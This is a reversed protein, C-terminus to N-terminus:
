SEERDSEERELTLLSSGVRDSHYIQGTGYSSPIHDPAHYYLGRDNWKSMVETVRPQQGPSHDIGTVIGSHTISNDATNRYIIIDGIQPSETVHYANDNLIHQVDEPKSIWGAGGIFTFGHCNYRTDPKGVLRITDLIRGNMGQNKWHQREQRRIEKESLEEQARSRQNASFRLEIERGNDTKFRNVVTSHFAQVYEPIRHYRKQEHLTQLTNWRQRDGMSINTGNRAFLDSSGSASAEGNKKATFMNRLLDFGGSFSPKSKSENIKDGKVEFIREKMYQSKELYLPWTVSDMRKETTNYPNDQKGEVLDAM